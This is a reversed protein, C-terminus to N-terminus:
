GPAGAALAMRKFYLITDSNQEFDLTFEDRWKEKPIVNLVEVHDM